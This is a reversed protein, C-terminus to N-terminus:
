WWVLWGESASSNFVQGSADSFSFRVVLLGVLIVFFFMPFRGDSLSFFTTTAGGADNKGEFRVRRQLTLHPYVLPVVM